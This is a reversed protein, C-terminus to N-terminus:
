FFLPVPAVGQAQDVITGLAVDFHADNSQRETYWHVGNVTHVPSRMSAMVYFIGDVGAVDVTDAPANNAIYTAATFMPTGDAATPAAAISASSAM